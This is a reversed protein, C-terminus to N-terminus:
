DETPSRQEKIMMCMECTCDKGHKGHMHHRDKGASKMEAKKEKQEPTLLADLQQKYQEKAAGMADHKAQIIGRLEEAQSESLGLHATMMEVKKGIADEEMGCMGCNALATQSLMLMLAAVSIFGYLTFRKMVLEGRTQKYVVSSNYAFLGRYYLFPEMGAPLSAWVIDM